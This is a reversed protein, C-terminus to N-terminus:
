DQINISEELLSFDHSNNDHIKGMVESGLIKYSITYTAQQGSVIEEHETSCSFREAIKEPNSFYLLRDSLIKYAEQRDM